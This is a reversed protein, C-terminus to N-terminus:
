RFKTTVTVIAAASALAIWAVSSRTLRGDGFEVLLMADIRNYFRVRPPGCMKTGQVISVEPSSEDSMQTQDLIIPLPRDEGVNDFLRQLLHKNRAPTEQTLM